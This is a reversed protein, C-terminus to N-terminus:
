LSYKKKLYDFRPGSQDAIRLKGAWKRHFPTEPTKPLEGSERALLQEVLGSLSTGRQRAVTKARHSIRPELTLTVRTKMRM